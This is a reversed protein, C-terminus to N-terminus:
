EYGLSKLFREDDNWITSMCGPPLPPQIVLVGKQGPPVEAGTQEDVVLHLHHVM